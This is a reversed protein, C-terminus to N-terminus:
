RESAAKRRRQVLECLCRAANAYSPDSKFKTKLDAHLTDNFVKSLQESLSPPTEDSYSAVEILDCLRSITYDKGAFTAVTPEEVGPAWQTLHFDVAREFARVLENPIPM